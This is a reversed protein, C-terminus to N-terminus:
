RVIAVFIGQNFIMSPTYFNVQCNNYTLFYFTVEANATASTSYVCETSHSNM